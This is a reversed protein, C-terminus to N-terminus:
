CMPSVTQGNRCSGTHGATDAGYIAVHEGRGSAVAKDLLEAACNLRLPYQLEPLEFIFEPLQSPPPLNDRGFTDLHASKVM